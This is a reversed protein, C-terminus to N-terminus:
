YGYRRGTMPNIALSNGTGAGAFLRLPPADVGTDPYGFAGYGGLGFVGDANALRRSSDDRLFEPLRRVVATEVSTRLSCAQPAKPLDQLGEGGACTPSLLGVLVGTGILFARRYGV